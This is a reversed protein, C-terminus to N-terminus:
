NDLVTFCNDCCFNHDTDDAVDQLFIPQIINGESDEQGDVLSLTEACDVCYMAANATVGVVEYSKRYM